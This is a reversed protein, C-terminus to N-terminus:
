FLVKCVVEWKCRKFWDYGMSVGVFELGLGYIEM